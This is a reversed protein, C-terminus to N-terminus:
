SLIPLLLIALLMTSIYNVQLTEEHGTSKVIAFHLKIVGANLLVIDVRGLQSDVRSVFAQISSYDSMDLQWVEIHAEPHVRRFKAAAEEGRSISRVALILRSLQLDM